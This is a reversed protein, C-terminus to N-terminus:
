IDTQYRNRPWSSALSAGLAICTTSQEGNNVTDATQPNPCEDEEGYPMEYHGNDTKYYSGADYGGQAGAAAANMEFPKATVSADPKNVDGAPRAPKAFLCEFSSLLLLSLLLLPAASRAMSALENSEQVQQLLGKQFRDYHL